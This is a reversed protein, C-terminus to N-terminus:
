ICRLRCELYVRGIADGLSKLYLKYPMLRRFLKTASEAIQEASNLM